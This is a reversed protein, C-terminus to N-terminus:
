FIFLILTKFYIIANFLLIEKFYILLQILKYYIDNISDIKCSIIVMRDWARGEEATWQLLRDVPSVKRAAEVKLNDLYMAQAEEWQPLSDLKHDTAEKAKSTHNSILLNKDLM